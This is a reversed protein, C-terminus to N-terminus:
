HKIIVTGVVSASDLTRHAEKIKELPFAHGVKPVIEEKSVKEM